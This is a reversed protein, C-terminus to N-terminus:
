GIIRDVETGDRFAIVTPMARILLPGAVDAQTEVDIQVAVAHRGLWDVVKPDVWTTRDMLHCPQCWSATADVVFLLGERDAAARAEVFPISRFVPPKMSPTESM